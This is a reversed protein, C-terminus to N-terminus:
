GIGRRLETDRFRSSSVFDYLEKVFFKVRHFLGASDLKGTLDGVSHRCFDVWGIELCIMPTAMAPRELKGDSDWLQLIHHGAVATDADLDAQAIRIHCNNVHSQRHKNYFPIKPFM